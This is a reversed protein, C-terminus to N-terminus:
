FHYKLGFMMQRPGIKTSTIQGFSTSGFSTNPDAFIPHNLVNQAEIRVQLQHGWGVRINKMLAADFVQVAPGRYNLTRPATGPVDTEPKSFAAANFYANLQKAATPLHQTEAVIRFAPLWNWLNSLRIARDVVHRQAVDRTSAVRNACPHTSRTERARLHPIPRMRALARM